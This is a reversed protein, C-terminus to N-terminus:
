DDWQVVVIEERWAEEAPAGADDTCCDGLCSFVLVTGWEMGDAGGKLLADLEKQREQVSQKKASAAPPRQLLNILNPMLQCEFVRPGGCTPCSAISSPDYTHKTPPPAGTVPVATGAPVREVPFLRQYVSDRSAFPLPTGSLDYRIVQQPEGQVRSNFKEFVDDVKHMV